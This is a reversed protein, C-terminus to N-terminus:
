SPMVFRLPAAHGIENRSQQAPTPYVSFAAL